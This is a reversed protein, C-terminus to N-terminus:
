AREFTCRLPYGSRRAAYTTTRVRSEAIDKTYIGVVAQGREHVELMIKKAQDIPKGFIETLVQIVFEMTTYNDNHLICRYMPPQEVDVESDAITETQQETTM